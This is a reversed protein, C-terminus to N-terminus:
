SRLIRDINERIINELTETKNFNQNDIETMIQKFQDSNPDMKSLDRRTTVASVEDHAQLVSKYCKDIISYESKNLVVRLASHFNDDFSNEVILDFVTKDTILKLGIDNYYNPPYLTAVGYQLCTTKYKRKMSPITSRYTVIGNKNNEWQEYLEKVFDKTYISDDDATVIIANPYKAATFFYKKYAKYNQKVWLLEILNNDILKLLERPLENEQNPFEDSSLVLVIHCYNCWKLLSEITKHVNVIRQKWSTLSIVIQENNYSKM